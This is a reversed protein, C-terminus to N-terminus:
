KEFLFKIDQLQVEVEKNAKQSFVSVKVNTLDGEVGRSKLLPLLYETVIENGNVQATIKLDM